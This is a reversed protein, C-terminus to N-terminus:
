RKFGVGDRHKTNDRAYAQDKMVAVLDDRLDFWLSKNQANGIWGSRGCAEIFRREFRWTRYRRFHCQSGAWAEVHHLWTKEM